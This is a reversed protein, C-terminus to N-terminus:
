NKQILPNIRLSAYSKSIKSPLISILSWTPINRRIKKILNEKCELITRLNKKM